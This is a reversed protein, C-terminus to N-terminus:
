NFNVCALIVCLLVDIFNGQKLGVLSLLALVVDPSISGKLQVYFDKILHKAM